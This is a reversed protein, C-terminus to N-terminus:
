RLEPLAYVYFRPQVIVHSTDDDPLIIQVIMTKCISLIGPVPIPTFVFSVLIERSYTQFSGVEYHLVKM